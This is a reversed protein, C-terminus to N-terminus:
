ATFMSSLILLSPNRGMTARQKVFMRMSSSRKSEQVKVEIWTSM